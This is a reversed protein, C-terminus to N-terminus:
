SKYLNLLQEITKEWNYTKRVLQSNDIADSRLTSSLEVIKKRYAEVDGFPVNSGGSIVAINAIEGIDSGIVRLGLAAADLAALCFGEDRSPQVYLDAHDYLKKLESDSCGIVFRFVNTLEEDSIRKQLYAFYSPVRIGGVIHVRYKDKDEIDKFVDILLELNKGPAFGAVTLINIKGENNYKNDWDDLVFKDNYGHHIVSIPNKCKYKLLKKRVNNCPVIITIRKDVTIINFWSRLSRLQNKLTDTIRRYFRDGKFSVSCEEPPINHITVFVKVGCNIIKKYDLLYYAYWGFIIHVVDIEKENIINLIQEELTNIFLKCRNGYSKNDKITIPICSIDPLSRRENEIIPYVLYPCHGFSKVGYIIKRLYTATGGFADVKPNEYIYLINM